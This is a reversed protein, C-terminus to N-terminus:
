LYLAGGWICKTWWLYWFPAALLSSSLLFSFLSEREEYIVIVMCPSM